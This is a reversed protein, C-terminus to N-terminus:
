GTYCQAQSLAVEKQEEPSKTNQESSGKWQYAEDFAENNKWLTYILALLKRQVAVMAKKKVKPNRKVVRLYLQYFPEVKYRIISMGPMYMATRLRANGQKSIRTKGARKGSQNEVIDYGAYKILQNISKIESFGNTESIVELMTLIGLGTLSDTILILKQYLEHDEKALAIAEKEIHAIQLNMQAILDTLSDKVLASPHMSFSLAHLRNQFAVRSNILSRRHRLLGRIQLIKESVPQWLRRSSSLAMHALMYGDKEDNKSDEGMSKRYAKVRKGLLLSVSYSAEYLSFLVQEHYVGTAELYIRLGLTQDKRYKEIWDLLKSIGSPTNPFKRSGRVKILEESTKGLFYVVLEKKSVDIGVGYQIFQVKM